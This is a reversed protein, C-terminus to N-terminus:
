QVFELAESITIQLTHEEGSGDGAKTYEEMEVLPSVIILVINGLKYNSKMFILPINNKLEGTAWM